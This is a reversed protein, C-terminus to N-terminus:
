FFCMIDLGSDVKHWYAYTCISEGDLEFEIFIYIYNFGLILKIM